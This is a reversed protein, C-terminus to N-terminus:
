SSKAKFLTLRVIFLDIFVYNFDEDDYLELGVMCGTIFDLAIGM